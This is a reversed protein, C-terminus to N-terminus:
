GPGGDLESTVLHVTCGTFPEGAALVDAHVDLGKHLPLLSPHINVMRGAWRDVFGDSLLRMYGALCVVDPAMEDLSRILAAEHAARDAYAAQDIAVAPIDYRRATDLGPADSRNSVVGAIQGPYGPDMCAAILASMNSGRGSILVAIKKRRVANM